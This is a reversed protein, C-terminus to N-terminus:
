IWSGAKEEADRGGWGEGKGEGEEDAGSDVSKKQGDMSNRSYSASSTTPRAPALDEAVPLHIIGPVCAIRDIGRECLPASSPPPSPPPRSPFRRAM